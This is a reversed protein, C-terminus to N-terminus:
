LGAVGVPGSGATALPCIGLLASLWDSNPDGECDGPASLGLGLMAM